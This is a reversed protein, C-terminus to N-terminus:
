LYNLMFNRVQYQRAIRRVAPTALSKRGGGPLRSATGQAALFHNHFQM